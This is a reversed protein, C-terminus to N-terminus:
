KEDKVPPPSGEFIDRIRDVNRLQAKKKMSPSSPPRTQEARRSAHQANVDDSVRRPRTEVSKEQSTPERATAQDIQKRNAKDTKDQDHSKAKPREGHASKLDTTHPAAAAAAVDNGPPTTTMLEGTRAGVQSADTSISPSAANDMLGASTGAEAPATPVASAVQKTQQTATITTAKSRQHHQYFYLGLASILGGVLASALILPLMWARRSRYPNGALPVVPRATITEDEDFRPTVLTTESEDAAPYFEQTEEM